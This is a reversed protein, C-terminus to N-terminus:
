YTRDVDDAVVREMKILSYSSISALQTLATYMELATAHRNINNFTKVRRIINGKENVGANFHIKATTQNFEYTANM